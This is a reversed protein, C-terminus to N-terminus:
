FDASVCTWNKTLSYSGGHWTTHGFIKKLKFIFIFSVFKFNLFIFIFIFKLFQPNPILM